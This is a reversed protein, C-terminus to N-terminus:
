KPFGKMNRFKLNKSDTPTLNPKKELESRAKALQLLQQKTEDFARKMEPNNAQAQQVKRIDSELQHLEMRYNQIETANDKASARRMATALADYSAGLNSISQAEEKNSQTRKEGNSQSFNLKNLSSQMKNVANDVTKALNNFKKDVEGVLKDISKTLETDDLKGTIIVAGNDPM